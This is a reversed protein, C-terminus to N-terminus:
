LTLDIQLTQIKNALDDKASQLTANATALDKQAAALQDETQNLETVFRQQASKDADKLATINSRQRDEDNRLSQIRSNIGNVISQADAIRRRADLVPQLAQEFAQNHNSQNLIFTLQNDNANTLQYTNSNNLREGVHLRVTEGPAAQVRYRYLTPTTEFPKPDQGNAGSANDLTFNRHIPHEIVVTRSDPAANHVVYTIENTQSHHVILVGKSATVSTDHTNVHQSETTVRVAQDAAYSLLRREKPHIPDLLGEGGFNGDEVISFSGRDLTLDSTNTIWLARLAIPHAPSWLTVREADIKTQLIPVLASENKRITIPQSLKYEFFDDFASTTTNPIISNAARTEDSLADLDAGVIVSQASQADVGAKRLGGGMNGGSGAGIGGGNGSGMGTGNGSGMSYMGVVGAAPRAAATPFQDGSQHTQPTLQAEQSIPIEPRRAYLPTSLPQIFSQPAGAILSLQVNNWDSGTTNDVVSWGQLTATQTAAAAPTTPGTFLIRYTSKWIPVESIYSIHLDRAGNGNDRLTLHRLGQNRNTDLLDLYRNVNAGLTADLLRVQTAPSLDISRVAGSDSVVTLTRKEAAPKKSSDDSNDASTRVELSLLRGSIPAGSGTVEVRAGRIANYFDIATPSEDLGLPLAKLQQELPTTSNYAAGSIRGGNLDIATLSQLVDNLQASTFDITVSQDGTVRGSHEFYGVGNKYLSVRTVPLQASPQPATQKIPAPKPASKNQAQAATLLAACLLTLTLSRASTPM